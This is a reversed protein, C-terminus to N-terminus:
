TELNRTKVTWRDQRDHFRCALQRAESIETSAKVKGFHLNTLFLSPWAKISAAQKSFTGDLCSPTGAIAGLESPNNEQLNCRDQEKGERRILLPIYQYWFINPLMLELTPSFHQFPLLSCYISSSEAAMRLRLGMMWSSSRGLSQMLYEVIAHVLVRRAENRAKMLRVVIEGATANEPLNSIESRQTSEGKWTSTVDAM